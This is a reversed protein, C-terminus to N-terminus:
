RAVIVRIRGGESPLKDYWGTLTYRGSEVHAKDTLYYDTGRLEYYLAGDALPYSQNGALAVGDGLATLKVETLAKLKEVKQGDSILQFPGCGVNYITTSSQHAGPVGGLDYSYFSQITLGPGSYEASQTVVGYQHLDGTVDNLILRTIEGASNTQYYRVKGETLRVGALRSPYVRLAGTKGYTDLIEVGAAFVHAGVATGDSRVAGTFAAPTLHRITMAGNKSYAQALDGPELTASDGQPYTVTAGSTTVMTVTKSTYTGGKGDPYRGTGTATVVGCLAASTEDFDGSVVAAVGGSRGLLLTVVDGPGYPGLDSLAWAADATELALTRGAATVSTPSAASPQVSQVSGTVRDTYAWLTRMSKSYYILDLAQLEALSAEEGARYVTVHDLSFPISSEWGARCVVPGDMASNLIAVRDLEGGATLPYGLTTCYIQGSKTPATLLNYFLYMADRRSVPSRDSAATVGKDLGLTRYLAMQGSPYAGTFDTSQYGLLRLALIVAESLTITNDPRFTGDLYGTVFGCSVAAQVAPAAWHTYPVDPYPSVSASEGVSDQYPSAAMTLKVLEARTMTRDLMMDGDENGKMIDLAALVQAAEEESVPSAVAMAPAALGLVLTLALAISCLRKKM